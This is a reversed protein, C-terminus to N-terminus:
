AECLAWNATVNSGTDVWVSYGYLHPNYTHNIFHSVNGYKFVDITFVPADRNNFDLDFLYTQQIVDYKKVVSKQKKM